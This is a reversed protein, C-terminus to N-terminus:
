KIEESKIQRYNKWSLVVSKIELYSWGADVCEISAGCFVAPRSCHCLLEIFRLNMDLAEISLRGWTLVGPLREISGPSRCAVGSLATSNKGSSKLLISSIM